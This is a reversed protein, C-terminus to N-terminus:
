ISQDGEARYRFVDGCVMIIDGNTYVLNECNAKKVENNILIPNGQGELIPGLDMMLLGGKQDLVYLTQKGDFALDVVYMEEQKEFFARGYVGKSVVKNSQICYIGVGEDLHAVAFFIYSTAIAMSFKSSLNANGLNVVTLNKPHLLYARADAIILIKGNVMLLQGESINAGNNITLIGKFVLPNDNFSLVLM